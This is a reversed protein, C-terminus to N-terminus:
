SSRASGAASRSPRGSPSSRPPKTPPQDRAGEGPNDTWRGSLLREKIEDETGGNLRVGAVQSMPVFGRVGHANVILGGKNFDVVEAEFIEGAEFQQQM